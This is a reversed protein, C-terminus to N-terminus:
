FCPRPFKQLLPSALGIPELSIAMGAGAHLWGRPSTLGYTNFCDIYLEM